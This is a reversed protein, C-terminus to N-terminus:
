IAIFNEFPIMFLLSQKLSFKKM